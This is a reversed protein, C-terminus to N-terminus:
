RWGRIGEGSQHRSGGFQILSLVVVHNLLRSRRNLTMCVATSTEQAKSGHAETMAYVLSRPKGPLCCADSTESPM